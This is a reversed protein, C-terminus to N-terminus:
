EDISEAGITSIQRRITYLPFPPGFLALIPHAICETWRYVEIDPLTDATFTIPLLLPCGIAERESSCREPSPPGNTTLNLSLSPIRHQWQKVRPRHSDVSPRTILLFYTSSHRPSTYAREALAELPTRGISDIAFASHRPSSVAVRRPMAADQRATNASHARVTTPDRAGPLELPTRSIGRLERTTREARDVVSLTPLRTGRADRALCQTIKKSIYRSLPLLSVIPLFRIPSSFYNRVSSEKLRPSFTFAWSNGPLRCTLPAKTTGSSKPTTPARHPTAKDRVDRNGM